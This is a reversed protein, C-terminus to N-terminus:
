TDPYTNGQWDTITGFEFGETIVETTERLTDLLVLMDRGSLEREALSGRGMTVSIQTLTREDLEREQAVVLNIGASSSRGTKVGIVGPTNGLLPNTNEIFGICPIHASEMSIFQSVVPHELAMRGIRLADAPSAVNAESMGSPVAM